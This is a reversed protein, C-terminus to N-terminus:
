GAGAEPDRQPGTRPVWCSRGQYWQGDGRLLGMLADAGAGADGPLPGVNWGVQVAFQQSFERLAALSFVHSEADFEVLVRSQPSLGLARVMEDLCEAYNSLTKEAWKRRDGDLEHLLLLAISGRMTTPALLAPSPLGVLFAEVEDRPVRKWSPIFTYVDTGLRSGPPASARSLHAAVGEFRILAYALRAAEARLDGTDTAVAHM